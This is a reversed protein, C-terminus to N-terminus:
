QTWWRTGDSDKPQRKWGLRELIASIRRQDATGIKPTEIHLAERAVRGVTTRRITALYEAITEEWADTEFRDEQESLIHEREFTGDPWWPKGNRYMEVAEAFLQDRDRALGVIDIVGTKIPWFRRGGTEDRLYVDKNTTGIFVCQRPEVVEKRGYSPRYRETKRTIFAKLQTAEARKMAHMESVEILWKGRLHQASDKWDTVDPLSDSFWEGGLIQCATSKFSGQPGELVPLHDAKCGPEFIRAVMSVLFMCGAAEVYPTAKAGFYKAFVAALHPTGDWHLGELYVRVPHFACEQARLDVAHHATEKALNRLGALQLWEQLASLDVDTVLRQEFALGDTAIPRMLLSARQMEDFAFADKLAPDNRLAIMTNALNPIPEGRGDKACQCLWERATAGQAPAGNTRPQRKTSAAEDARRCAENFSDLDYM